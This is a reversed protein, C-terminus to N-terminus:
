KKIYELVAENKKAEWEEKFGSGENTRLAPTVTCTGPLFSGKQGKLREGSGVMSVNLLLTSFIFFTVISAAAYTKMRHAWLSTATCKMEVGFDVKGRLYEGATNAAEEKDSADCILEIVTRYKM